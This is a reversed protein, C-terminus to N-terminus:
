KNPEKKTAALQKELRKLIETELQNDRGLDTWTLNAKQERTLKPNKADRQQYSMATQQDTATQSQPLSLRQTTARCDICLQGAQESINIEVARRISQMDAETRNFSGVSDARWFEFSQAGSLPTTRIYGANVDFKEISFHMEALVQEATTMAATKNAAPSCLQEITKTYKNQECGALWFLLSCTLLKNLISKNM